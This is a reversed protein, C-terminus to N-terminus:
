ALPVLVSSTIEPCTESSSCASAPAELWASPDFLPGFFFLRRLFLFPLLYHKYSPDTPGLVTIDLMCLCPDRLSHILVQYSDNALPPISYYRPERRSEEPIHM